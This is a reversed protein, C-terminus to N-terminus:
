FNPFWFAANQGGNNYVLEVQAARIADAADSYPDIQVNGNVITWPVPGSANTPVSWTTISVGYPTTHTITGSLSPKKSTDATNVPVKKAFTFSAVWAGNYEDVKINSNTQIFNDNTTTTEAYKATQHAWYHNPFGVIADSMTSDTGSVPATRTTAADASTALAIPSTIAAAAVLGIIIRRM